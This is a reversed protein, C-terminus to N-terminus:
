NLYRKTLDLSEKSTRNSQEQLSNNLTAADILQKNQYIAYDISSSVSSIGSSVFDATMSLQKSVIAINSNIKASAESLSSRISAGTSHVTNIIEEKANGIMRVLENHNLKSDTLNLAEKYSDARGTSLYYILLDINKWESQNITKSYQKVLAKAFINTDNRITDIKRNLENKQSNCQDIYTELESQQNAILNSIDKNMQEDTKSIQYHLREIKKNIRINKYIFYFPFIAIAISKFVEVFKDAFDGVDTLISYIGSGIAIIDIIGVGLCTYFYWYLSTLETGNAEVVTVVILSIICILLGYFMLPFLILYGKFTKKDELKNVDNYIEKNKDSYMGKKTEVKEENLKRKKDISEDLYDIKKNMEDIKEQNSVCYSLGARITYMTNVLEQNEKTM